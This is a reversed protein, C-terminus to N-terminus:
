LEVVPRIGSERLLCDHRKEPMVGMKTKAFGFLTDVPMDTVFPKQRSTLYLMAYRGFWIEPSEIRVVHCSKVDEDFRHFDWNHSAKIQPDAVPYPYAYHIGSKHAAAPIRGAGAWVHLTIFIVSAAYFLPRTKEFASWALLSVFFPSFYSLAKGAAWYSQRLVLFLVICAAAPIFVSVAVAPIATSDSNKRRRKYFHTVSYVFGASLVICLASLVLRATFKWIRVAHETPTVFYFGFLGSVFDSIGFFISKAPLLSFMERASKQLLAPDFDILDRGLFFAQYIKWWDVASTKSYLLQTLIFQITGHFFLFGAAVGITGGVAPLILTRPNRLWLASVVASLASCAGVVVFAEPYLYLSGASFLSILIATRLNLKRMRLRLLLATLTVLVGTSAVQSWANIDLSYQGWFGLSFAAGAIMGYISKVRFLYSLFFACAFTSLLVFSLLFAYHLDWFEGPLFHSVVGYFMHISPRVFMQIQGQVLLPDALQDALTAHEVFDFSYRSYSSASELYGFTDWRNGQYVAFQSGGALRPALLIAACAIWIAHFVFSKRIRRFFRAPRWSYLKLIFGCGAWLCLIWFIVNTSLGYIYAITSFPVASAAGLLLTLLRSERASLRLWVFSMGIGAFLFILFSFFLIQNM